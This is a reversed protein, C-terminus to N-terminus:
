NELENFVTIVLFVYFACYWVTLQDVETTIIKSTGDMFSCLHRGTETAGRQDHCSLNKDFCNFLHLVEDNSFMCLGRTCPLFSHSHTM